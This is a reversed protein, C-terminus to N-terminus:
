NPYAVVLIGESVDIEYVKDVEPMENGEVISKTAEDRSAGQYIYVNM